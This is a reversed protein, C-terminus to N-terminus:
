TARPFSLRRGYDEILEALLRRANDLVNAELSTLTVIVYHSSIARNERLGPGRTTTQNIALGKYVISDYSRTM